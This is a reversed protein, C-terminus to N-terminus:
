RHSHGHDAKLTETIVAGLTALDPRAFFKNYEFERDFHAGVAVLMEIVLVSDGGFSFFNDELSIDPVRLLQQWLDKLYAAVAAASTDVKTSTSQNLENM